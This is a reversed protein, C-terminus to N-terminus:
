RQMYFHNFLQSTEDDIVHFFFARTLWDMVHCVTCKESGQSKCFPIGRADRRLRHVANSLHAHLDHLVQFVSIRCSKIVLCSSWSPVVVCLHQGGDRPVCPM